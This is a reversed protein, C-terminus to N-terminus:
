VMKTQLVESSIPLPIETYCKGEDTLVGRIRSIWPRTYEVVLIQQNRYFEYVEPKSIRKLKAIWDQAYEIAERITAFKKRPRDGNYLKLGGDNYLYLCYGPTYESM